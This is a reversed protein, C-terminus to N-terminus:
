LPSPKYAYKKQLDKLQKSSISIASKIECEENSVLMRMNSQYNESELALRKLAVKAIRLSSASMTQTPTDVFVVGPKVRLKTRKQNTSLAMLGLKSKM